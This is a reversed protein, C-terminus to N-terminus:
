PYQDVMTEVESISIDISAPNSNILVVEFGEKKLNKIISIGCPQGGAIFNDILGPFKIIKKSREAILAFVM